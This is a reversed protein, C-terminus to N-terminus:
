SKELIIEQGSAKIQLEKHYKFQQYLLQDCWRISGGEYNICKKKSILNKTWFSYLEKESWISFVTEKLISKIQNSSGTKFYNELM